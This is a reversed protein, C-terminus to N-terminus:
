SRVMRPECRRTVGPALDLFGPGDGPVTFTGDREVLRDGGIVSQAESSRLEGTAIQLSPTTARAARVLLRSDGTERLFVIADPGVDVWRFGGHRLAPESNRISILRRYWDLFRADWDSTDWRMTRRAQEANSGTLGIEDGYFFAPTGPLSMLLGFGVLAADDSTALSRWRATDHSGLLSMSAMTVQWPLSARVADMTRAMQVGDRGPLGPGSMFRDLYESRGLWSAIPKTVGAYNMVGHWGDGAADRSADFFHEAVLWRDPGAADVTARAIRAAEHNLDVDGHRGTMNAVDIRWGAMDFPPRLYRGLVSDPGDYLRRRLETNRHDLKPLSRVGLWTEYDDPHENFYYFDAETCGPDAQAALFWDHHSGTHNLTLDTMVKIGIAGASESLRVLADDGGLIPDVRDFTTVDYRHNSRAPFVPTLYVGGVGLDALHTLHATIGDLDGGYVQTMAPYGTAVPDDWGSWQAWEPGTGDDRRHDGTTAFRDPFIQYWVFESIWSPATSGPLLRFDDTDPPDWDLLGAGNLWRAGTSTELQFRYNVIPQTCDLEFRLFRGDRVGRVWDQEGDRVTRLWATDVTDVGLEVSITITDGLSPTPQDVHRASPDHHPLSLRSSPPPTM